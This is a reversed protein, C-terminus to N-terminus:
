CKWHIRTTQRWYNSQIRWTRGGNERTGRRDGVRPLLVLDPVRVPQVARGRRHLQRGSDGLQLSPIAGENRWPAL